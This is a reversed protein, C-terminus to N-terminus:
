HQGWAGRGSFHPCFLFGCTIAKCGNRDTLVGSLVRVQLRRILFVFATSKQGGNIESTKASFEVGDITQTQPTERVKARRRPRFPVNRAFECTENGLHGGATKQGVAARAGAVQWVIV